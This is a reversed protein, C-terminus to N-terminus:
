KQVTRENRGRKVHSIVRELQDTLKTQTEVIDVIKDEDDTEKIKDTINVIYMVRLKM